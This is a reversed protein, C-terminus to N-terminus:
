PAVEVLRASYLDPASSPSCSTAPTGSILCTADTFTSCIALTLLVSMVIALQSVMAFRMLAIKLSSGFTAPTTTVCPM